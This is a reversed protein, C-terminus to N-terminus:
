VLGLAALAAHGVVPLAADIVKGMASKVSGWLTNTSQSPAGATAAEHYAEAASQVSELPKSTAADIAGALEPHETKLTTVCQALATVSEDLTQGAAALASPNEPATRLDVCGPCGAILTLAAVVFLSAVYLRKM